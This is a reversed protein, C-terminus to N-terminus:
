PGDHGTTSVTRPAPSVTPPSAACTAARPHLVPAATRQHEREHRAALPRGPPRAFYVGDTFHEALLDHHAPESGQDWTLSLRAPEPLSHLVPHRRRRLGRRYPRGAPAGPAPIPQPPRGLPGDGVQEARGRDPRRGM